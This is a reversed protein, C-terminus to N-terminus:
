ISGVCGVKDNISRTPENCLSNTYTPVTFTDGDVNVQIGGAVAKGGAHEALAIITPQTGTQETLAIRSDKATVSIEWKAQAEAEEAAVVIQPITMVGVVAMITMILITEILTLGTLRQIM